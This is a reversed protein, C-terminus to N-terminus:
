AFDIKTIEFEAGYPIKDFQIDLLAWKTGAAAQSYHELFHKDTLRGFESLTVYIKLIKQSSSSEENELYKLISKFLNREHM